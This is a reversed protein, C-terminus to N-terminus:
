DTVTDTAQSWLCRWMRNDGRVYVDLHRCELHGQPRGKVLVDINSLYRVVGLSGSEVCEIESQPEFRLYRISGDVLGGLYQTRDWIMGSPTCLRFGPAHLQELVAADANVIARLREEEVERLALV